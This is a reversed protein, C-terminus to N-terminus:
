HRHARENKQEHIILKSILGIEKSLMLLLDDLSIVGVLGGSNDVVPLRRIGKSTMLHSAEFVSASEQIVALHSVMIDGVTFVNSDLDTAVVEMILDRDTVIGVPVTKNIKTEVVVVDGVHHQRMLKAANLITADREVTVVDKNCIAGIIMPAGRM